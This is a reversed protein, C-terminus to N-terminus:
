KVNVTSVVLIGVNIADNAIWTLTFIRRLPRPLKKVAGIYDRVGNRRSLRFYVM